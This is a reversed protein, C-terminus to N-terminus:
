VPKEGDADLEHIEAITWQRIAPEIMKRDGVVVWIMSQPQLVQQITSQVEELTITNLKEIYHNFYDDPYGFNVIEYLGNLVALNTEWSGPLQLRQNERTKEFEERTLAKPGTIDTIERYIEELAERTKDAQVSTYIMLPRQGRSSAIFSGAGYTWHKDERLNLNLRSTFDGGLVNNMLELAVDDPGGPPPILQGCFILSQISGPRDIIYLAAQKPLSVAPLHKNATAEHKWRGLNKELVPFMSRMSVAGTMLLVARSPGFWGRYRAILSKRSLQQVVKSYGNGTFPIGYPHKEGYLLRPLVRLAMAVPTVKENEIAALQQQQLRQFEKEPFTPNLIVDSLIEFSREFQSSLTTMQLYSIDLDARVSLSTGIDALETSIALANRKKTGEDLLGMLLQMAGAESLGDTALGADFTLQLHVLPVSPREVFRVEIGNSLKERCIDPFRPLPQAEKDPLCSRDLSPVSVSYEPYPHVELIYVGESLWEKVLRRLSGTTTRAAFDLMKRYYAPDNKYIQGQALIDSKGGFGGIREIGRIFGAIYNMQARHLEEGTPGLRILRQLEEDTAKEITGIDVGPKATVEIFFLGGIERLDVYAEAQMATQDTYVLRRYLRSTKGRGFISALLKLEVAEKTSWEPINWVKILKSQPVRDQLIERQVGERKAIWQKFHGVPPGPPIDGFYKETKKLAQEPTIDGALVLVANSPGYYQRFWQHVDDLTAANLDEMSGIVPWSYPHHSPYVARPILEDVMGYPQNLYQRKENQVVGRQEDLKAQTVAGLLHGMRDSEMWLAIDLASTPVNQFYNTRDESTTGNLDTAGIAEMVQFYDQDCHESGNFMLHEFLHAFGTKGPKENKSGVHYWINVAVIPAKHDEHVILTLGNPLIFREYPIEISPCVIKKRNAQTTPM